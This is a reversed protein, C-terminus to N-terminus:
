VSAASIVGDNDVTVQWITLDPSQLLLSKTIGQSTSNNFREIISAGTSYISGFTVNNTTYNCWFTAILDLASVSDSTIIYGSGDPTWSAVYEAVVNGAHHTILGMREVYLLGLTYGSNVTATCSSSGTTHKLNVTCSSGTGTLNLKGDIVSRIFEHWRKGNNIQVCDASGSNNFTCNEFYHRGESGNDVLCPVTGGGDFQIGYCRLRSVTAPITVTGVIETRQSDHTNYAWLTPGYNGYAVPITIDETYSGPGVFINAASLSLAHSITKYPNNFSGTGTSDNGSSNVYVSTTISYTNEKDDLTDQLNTVDSIAISPFGWSRTGETTSTLFKNTTAPNGLAAEKGDLATQLGAVESITGVTTKQWDAADTTADCCIWSENSTLNIWRSGVSYGESTDNTTAPDSTAAFNNLLISGSDTATSGVGFAEDLTDDMGFYFTPQGSAPNTVQLVVGKPIIISDSVLTALETSTLCIVKLLEANM